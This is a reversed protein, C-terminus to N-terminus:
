LVQFIRDCECYMLQLVRLRVRTVPLRRSEQVAIGSIMFVVRSENSFEKFPYSFTM